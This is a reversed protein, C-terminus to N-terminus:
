PVSRRVAPRTQTQECAEIHEDFRYVEVLPVDLRWPGIGGQRITKQHAPAVREILWRDAPQWASPRHQVVYWRYTGPAEPRFEFPLEGWRRMLELNETSGAAVYVKKTDEPEPLPDSGERMTQRHLWDLVSDDLGDWYYTPEMGLATAGRLGGIALNYYSLWQPAYRYLSTANAAFLLGLGVTALLRAPLGKKARGAAWDVVSACGVGALAALFAFSPLFLRVGDHPPTGPLARVVLLALASALLLTGAPRQRGHRLVSVAGTVMLALIGVPVTVVTWFLTNYWPLPHDLNYMRGLFQTSINFGERSLNLQFFTGWGGVPDLWLPPNLLFFAVLAVPVGLALARLGGRDRYALAWLLFPLPAIWGTAKSSLTMGLAMGFVVAGRWSRRAPAFAAWALIWSSTLPGDISAFHAHAFMRPLCILAAAAGLGATISWERATRYFLAAAALSFLLMPGLRASGLPGLWRESISRGAAIVIGYFAPHGEIQTTYRWYYEFGKRSWLGVRGDDAKGAALQEVWHQALRSRWIANGEDWAMPLGPSTATLMAACAVAVLVSVLAL